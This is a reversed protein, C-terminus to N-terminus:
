LHRLSSGHTACFKCCWHLWTSLGRYICSLRLLWPQRHKNQQPVTLVSAACSNCHPLRAQLQLQLAAEHEELLAEQSLGLHEKVGM